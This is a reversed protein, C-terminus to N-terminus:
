RGVEGALRHLEARLEGVTASARNRALWDDLGERHKLGPLAPLRVDRIGAERLLRATQEAHSKGPEDNDAWVVVCRAGRLSEAHERTFKGAGGDNCTAVLGLARLAHAKKEGEVVHVVQGRKVAALVDPLRYLVRPAGGRGSAWGDPVPRHVSYSKEGGHQWRAVRYLVAGSPDTYDCPYPRPCRAFDADRLVRGGCEAARARAPRASGRALSPAAGGHTVGCACPGDLRHAFTRSTAHVALRGAREERTCHAFRGDASRFGSCRVGRARPMRDHGGCVPCPAERTWRQESAVSM